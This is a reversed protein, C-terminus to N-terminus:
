SMISGVIWLVMLCVLSAGIIRIIGVRGLTFFLFFIALLGCTIM